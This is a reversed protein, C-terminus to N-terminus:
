PGKQGHVRILRKIEQTLTPVDIPKAIHGICGAELVQRQEDPMASATLAIVPISCTAPDQQLLRTAEIGDLRPMHVDMLVVDPSLRRAMEVAQRGDHAVEVTHGELELLDKVMEVNLLNDEAVLVRM